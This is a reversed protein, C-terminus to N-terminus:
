WWSSKPKGAKRAIKLSQKQEKLLVADYLEVNRDEIHDFIREDKSGYTMRDAYDPTLKASIIEECSRAQAYKQAIPSVIMSHGYYHNGGADLGVANIGAFYVHNDFARARNTLDWIEFSRLLAAPRLIVEAGKLALIRSIEPFDGEYCIVVGVKAFGLDFVPLDKGPTTWGGKELRETPFPHTKRYVGAIEGKDSIMVASNYIVPSKPGKEYMPLLVWVGLEKAVECVRRPSLGDLPEVIQYFEEKSMNPAFGTTISEPLAILRAGDDRAARRIWEIIKTTNEEIANPAVAIQICSLVFREM